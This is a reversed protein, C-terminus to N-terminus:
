SGGAPAAYARLAAIGDFQQAISTVGHDVVFNCLGRTSDTLALTNMTVIFWRRVMPLGEVDLAVLLGGHLELAAAHLSLFALGLNAMVAQKIADNSTMERVRPPDVRAQRFFRESAARTGSGPERGLFEYGALAAVPISQAQTLEHEPAALVGLPLAAFPRAYGEFDEPPAGMVAVDVEGRRLLGLLADRNAVSIRLEVDRHLERFQALMRPLFYKASSVMGVTVLGTERDRLRAMSDEAHQLAQLARRVDPL